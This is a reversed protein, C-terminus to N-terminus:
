KTLFLESQVIADILSRLGYNSPRTAAVIREIERRDSYHIEGGTGYLLFQRVMNAALTEPEALVLSQFGTFGDFREGTPMEGSPDVPLNLRVRPDWGSAFNFTVTTDGKHLSRYRDRYGGVVDFSELAFGPPDIKAHCGACREDARHLVLQERITKSGRTDPDITPVGAPPPPIHNGLIRENIWVGRTVPSTVSGNATVKLVAAQTLFPGRPCGAPVPVRRIASGTVGPISYHEALSQNLMAFDSKVLHTVSENRAILERLYARTEALMSQKLHERAEPYVKLDPQSADIKRLDLWQDTFDTIFRDSRPDALLRDTQQRLTEPEHLRGANALLLLEEDPVSNWFWLALREAVARDTLQIRGQSAANGAPEGVFLFDTSCLATKYAEKMADEFCARQELAGAVIGVYAQVEEPTVVRRFARPLFRGLLRAADILPEDSAVSELPPERETKPIEGNQPRVAASRSRQRTPERKPPVVGADRPFGQIPLEGFLARHSSPPWQEFLPGEVEFWDLAIGPGTYASCSGTSDHPFRGTHKEFGTPTGIDFVLEENVDFWGTYEDIRSELSPVDFLGLWRKPSHFFRPGESPEWVSLMFSENRHPPEVAGCDWWFGWASTRIRYTGAYVPSFQLSLFMPRHLAGTFFGAAGDYDRLQHGLLQMREKVFGDGGAGIVDQDPAPLPLVPDYQRNKLTVISGKAIWNWTETGTAGGFRKRLVPPPTSRTAIAATLAVDAADMFQNLHVNSLDLAQGIKDYGHRREDEPLLQKIRLGPLHLLDRLSNEYEQATMRRYLARGTKAVKAADAEHLRTDLLALFPAAEEASPPENSKPPMEGAAIRDHVREWLRFHEPDDLTLPLTDLDRGGKKASSDHCELCHNELFRRFDAEPTAAACPMGPLAVLGAALLLGAGGAVRIRITRRNM